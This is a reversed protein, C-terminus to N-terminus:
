SLSQFSLLQPIIINAHCPPHSKKFVDSFAALFPKQVNLSGYVFSHSYRIHSGMYRLWIEEYAGAAAGTCCLLLPVPISQWGVRSALELKGCSLLHISDCSSFLM